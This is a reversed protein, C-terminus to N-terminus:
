QTVGGGLLTRVASGLAGLTDQVPGSSRYGVHGDPRVLVVGGDSIERHHAWVGSPDTAEGNPGVRVARIEINTDAAIKAAANCWDFGEDGTLLLLGGLPILDHTSAETGDFHLWAHPLRSGPRSTPRYDSRMPDRHIPESGDGVIAGEAYIFGMEMDHAAYETRQISFIEEIIARRTEGEPDDAILRSFNAEALEAPAGPVAGLASMLLFYNTMTLMAWDANQSVVPRRELEYSDLLSSPALGLLVFSLKWCLNHVDQIASNLGLGAGPPHQHAADGVIFVRGVSFRDAIATELYWHQVKRLEMPVDVKLYSRIESLLGDDDLEDMTAPDYTFAVSWEESHRDWHTPGFTLMGGIRDPHSPHFIFRMVADDENIFSSFDAAVWGTAFHMPQMPGVREIGLEPGVTKGADAGILYECRVEIDEGRTLDRVIATVGETDQDFGILEHNFLVRDPNRQEAHERLIPELRIQPINTPPACGKADYQGRISPGAGMVDQSHYVIGDFPGDGGLSTIWYTKAMNERPSAKAYVSDAVGHHRFIEMTRQNIYHAKPLNSTSSHREILLSEVGLDALLISASLGAGGAGVVLM